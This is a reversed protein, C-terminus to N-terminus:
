DSGQQCLGALCAHMPLATRSEGTLLWATRSCNNYAAAVQDIRASPLHHVEGRQCLGDLAPPDGTRRHVHVRSLWLLVTVAEVCTVMWM